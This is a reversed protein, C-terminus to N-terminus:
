GLMSISDLLWPVHDSLLVASLLGIMEDEGTSAFEYGGDEAANQPPDRQLGVAGVDQAAGLALRCVNM